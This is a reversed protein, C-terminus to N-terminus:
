AAKELEVKTEDPRVADGPGPGGQPGTCLVCVFVGMAVSGLTRRGCIACVGVIM